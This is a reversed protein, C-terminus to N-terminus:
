RILLCSLGPDSRHKDKDKQCAVLTRFKLVNVTCVASSFPTLQQVGVNLKPKRSGGGGGPCTKITTLNNM